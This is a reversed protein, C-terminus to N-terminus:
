PFMRESLFCLLFNIYTLFNAKIVSVNQQIELKLPCHKVIHLHKKYWCSVISSVKCYQRGKLHIPECALEELSLINM